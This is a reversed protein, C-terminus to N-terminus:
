NKVKIDLENALLWISIYLEHPAKFQPDRYSHQNGLM